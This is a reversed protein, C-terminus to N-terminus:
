LSYLSNVVFRAQRYLESRPDIALSFDECENLVKRLATNRAVKGNLENKFQGRNNKFYQSSIAEYASRVMKSRRSKGEKGDQCFGAELCYIIAASLACKPKLFEDGDSYAKIVYKEAHMIKGSDEPFLRYMSKARQLWYHPDDNLLSELYDYVKPILKGAGHSSNRPFLQNLTDFLIAEIYLRKRNRDGKFMDVVFYIVRLIDDDSFNDLINLLAFKSNHTLKKESQSDREESSTKMFELLYGDFKRILAEVEDEGIEMVAIDASYIKDMVAVMFLLAKEHFSFCKENFSTFVTKIGYKNAVELAYDLNTIDKRRKIVGQCDARKNYSDLEDRNFKHDLEIIESEMNKELFSDSSNIALLAKNNKIRLRPLANAIVAYAENNFSNSDFVFLGNNVTDLLLKIRSIDVNTDSPFYYKDYSTYRALIHMLLATKGSFRRGKVIACYHIDLQRDIKAMCERDICLESSRFKNYKEDFEINNVIFKLDYEKNETVVMPNIFNYKAPKDKYAEVSALKTFEEYFYKYDDVVIIENIGYQKLLVRKENGPRYDLIIARMSGDLLRGRIKSVYNCIDPENDLSCGCYVINNQIYDAVLENYMTKNNRNLLANIYQDPNFVINEGEYKIEEGADGHIKYLLKYNRASEKQKKGPMVPNFDSCREIADDVNITYAHHWKLSFIDRRYDTLRSNCFYANFFDNRTQEDVLDYFFRATKQFDWERMDELSFDESSVAIIGKMLGTAGRGDPVSATRTKAGSSMGSGFIPVLKRDLFLRVIKTLGDVHGTIKIDITMKM